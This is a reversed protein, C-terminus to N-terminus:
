GPAFRGASGSPLCCCGGGTWDRGLYRRLSDMDRPSSAGEIFQTVIMGRGRCETFLRGDVTEVLQEVDLHRVARLVDADGAVRELPRQPPFWRVVLPAGQHEVRYAARDPEEYFSRIARAKVGFELLLVEALDKATAVVARDKCGSTLGVSMLCRCRANWARYVVSFVPAPKLHTLGKASDLRIGM